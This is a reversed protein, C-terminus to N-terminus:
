VFSPLVDVCLFCKDGEVHSVAAGASARAHDATGAHAEQSEARGTRLVTLMTCPPFLVEAEAAFQSLMGIDAGSHYGSDSEPQARLAWLVNEGSTSMYDIPTQRNRSTSMFAMDVAAVMGAKDPVWFSPPLEGRVGRWLPQSAEEATSVASLKRIGQLILVNVTRETRPHAPVIAAYPHTGPRRATYSSYM